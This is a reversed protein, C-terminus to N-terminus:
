AEHDFITKNDSRGTVYCTHLELSSRSRINNYRRQKASKWYHNIRECQGKTGDEEPLRERKRDQCLVYGCKPFSVLARWRVGTAARLFLPQRNLFFLNESFSPNIHSPKLITNDASRRCAPIRVDVLVVVLLALLVDFLDCWIWRLHVCFVGPFGASLASVGYALSACVCRNKTVFM